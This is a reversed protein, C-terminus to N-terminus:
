QNLNAVWFDRVAIANQYIYPTDNAGTWVMDKVETWPKAGEPAPADTRTSYDGPVFFPTFGQGGSADGKMWKILLKAANPHPAQNAIALGTEETFGIVPTMGWMVDFAIEGKIANRIKSYTTFGIPPNAQGFTGIATAADGSSSTLVPENKLLDKIWQYGANTVGAELEIPKGYVKEYEAAMEDAKLTILTIAQLAMYVKQPDPVVVRGKWEPQTLEWISKIPPASNVETNYGFVTLSYRHLLLPELIAPDSVSVLDDPVFNWLMKNPPDLMESVLTAFDGCLIVDATYINSQQETQLKTILDVTSIDYGEVTIGPYQAEFSEKITEWRSSNSYIVVKGEKNAAAEIAAWDQKEPAYPGLEAAKAWADQEKTLGEMQVAPSKGCSVLILSITLVLVLFPVAKHKM